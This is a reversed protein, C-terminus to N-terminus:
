DKKSVGKTCLSAYLPLYVNLIVLTHAHPEVQRAM